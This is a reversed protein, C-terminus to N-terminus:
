NCPGIDATFINPKTVEFESNLNIASVGKFTVNNVNVNVKGAQLAGSTIMGDHFTKDAALDTQKVDTTNSPSCPSNTAGIPSKWIGRGFTAARLVNDAQYVDLDNVRVPPLNTNFATWSTGAATKHYVGMHTGIFLDGTSTQEAIDYVPWNPIGTSINIWTGGSNSSMYVKKGDIYNGYTIYVKTHDSLSTQIRTIKAIGADPGTISSWNTGGDTTVTIAQGGQVAYVVMPNSKSVSISSYPTLMQNNTMATWNDGNDTSKYINGWGAYLTTPTTRDMDLPWVFDAKDNNQDQPQPGIPDSVQNWGDTTRALGGTQSKIFSINSNTNNILGGTGDSNNAINIWTTANWFVGDQDQAGAILINQNTPFGDMGYYQTVDLDESLDTWTTNTDFFNGKIMGGDHASFQINADTPHWKMMHHDSHVYQGQPSRDKLGNLNTLWTSGGDTSVYGQVGGLIVRNPNRPDAAITMDYGGQTNFVHNQNDSGDPLGMASWNLGGDSSKQGMGNDSIAYITATTGGSNLSIALDVKQAQQFSTLVSQSWTAGRDTSKIVADLSGAFLEESGNSYKIYKLDAAPNQEVQNWTTGADTSRYIGKTTTAVILKSDNPAIWLHHIAYQADADTLTSSGPATPNGINGTTSFTAGGDISRMVGVSLSQLADADGTAIYLTDGSNSIAIDSIGMVPLSGGTPTWNVGGNSTKWLGGNPTGCWMTNVNSPHFVFTNVRGMGAYTVATATPITPQGVFAWNSSLMKKNNKKELNITQNWSELVQSPNVFNGNSDLQYRWFYEWRAYKKYARDYNSNSKLTSKGNFKKEMSSKIESFSKGDNQMNVWEQASLTNLLLLAGIITVLQKM